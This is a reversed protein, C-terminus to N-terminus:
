GRPKLVGAHQRGLLAWKLAVALITYCAIWVVIALIIAPGTRGQVLWLMSAPDLLASHVQHM